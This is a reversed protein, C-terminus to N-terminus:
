DHLVKLLAEIEKETNFLHFSIRLKGERVSVDIQNKKLNQELQKSSMQKAILSIIQGYPKPTVLEFKSLDLAKIFEDRLYRNKKEIFEWGLDLFFDVAGSLAANALMNPAQGRDFKRAGPLTETTYDVLSTVDSSKPSVQWNGNQVQMFSLAKSSLVGFATGYPGLLWKYCSCAFLDIGYDKTWDYKLSQSGLSQTGDLMLFIDRDRCFKVLEELSFQWGTDFAVHSVTMYKTNKPVLKVLSHFLNEPNLQSRDLFTLKINKNKSAVMWPLVNSPYDGKFVVVEEQSKLPLANITLSIIDSVSTSHFLSDASCGVLKAMSCRLKESLSFWDQYGYFSPDLERELAKMVREKVILPSPGFYASNFYISRIHAFQEQVWKERNLTM